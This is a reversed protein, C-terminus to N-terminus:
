KKKKQGKGYKDITNRAPLAYEYCERLHSEWLQKNGRAAKLRENVSEYTM